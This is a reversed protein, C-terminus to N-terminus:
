KGDVGFLGEETDIETAKNINCRRSSRSVEFEYTKGVEVQYWVKMLMPSVRCTFEKEERTLYVRYVRYGGTESEYQEVSLNSVEATFTETHHSELGPLLLVYIMCASVSFILIIM